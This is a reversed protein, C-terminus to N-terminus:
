SNAPLLIRFRSCLNNHLIMYQVIQILNYRFLRIFYRKGIVFLGQGKRLDIVLAPGHARKQVTLPNVFLRHHYKHILMGSLNRCEEAHNRRPIEIYGNVLLHRGAPDLKYQLVHLSLDQDTIGHGPPDRLFKIKAPLHDQIVLDALRRHVLLGQLVYAAPGNVRIRMGIKTRLYIM